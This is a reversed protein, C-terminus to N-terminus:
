FGTATLTLNTNDGTATAVITITKSELTASFSQNNEAMPDSPLETMFFGMDYVRAMYWAVVYPLKENILWEGQHTSDNSSSGVLQSNPYVPIHPFGSPISGEGEVVVDQEQIEEPFTQAYGEEAEQGKKTKNVIVGVMFVASLIFLLLLHKKLSKMNIEYM